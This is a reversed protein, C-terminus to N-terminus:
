SQYEDTTLMTYMGLALGVQNKYDRHIRVGVDVPVWIQISGKQPYLKIYIQRKYQNHDTLPVYVRRRKQKASIYISHDGCRYAREAASFGQASGAHMKVSNRDVQRCLYRNMKEM